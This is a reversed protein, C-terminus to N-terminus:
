FGCLMRTPARQFNLDSLSRPLDVAPVGTIWEMRTPRRSAMVELDPFKGALLHSLEGFQKLHSFNTHTSDIRYPYVPSLGSVVSNRIHTYFIWGQFTLCIMLTMSGAGLAFRTVTPKRELFVLACLFVWFAPFAPSILRVGLEDFFKASRLVVIAVTYFAALFLSSKLVIMGSQPTLTRPEPAMKLYRTIFYVLLASLSAAVAWILIPLPFIVALSSVVHDINDGLSLSPTPREGGTVSGILQLNSVMLLLIPISFLLGAFIFYPLDIRRNNSLIFVYILILPTCIGAYRTYFM